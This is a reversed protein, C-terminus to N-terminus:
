LSLWHMRLTNTRHKVLISFQGIKVILIAARWCENPKKYTM